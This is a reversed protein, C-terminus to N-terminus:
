AEARSHPRAIEIRAIAHAARNLSPADPCVTIVGVRRMSRKAAVLLGTDAALRVLHHQIVILLRFVQEDAIRRFSQPEKLMFSTTITPACRVATPLNPPVRAFTAAGARPACSILARSLLVPTLASCTESTM